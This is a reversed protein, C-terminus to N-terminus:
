VPDAACMEALPPAKKSNVQKAHPEERDRVALSLWNGGDTLMLKHTALSELFGCVGTESIEQGPSRERLHRVIGPFSRFEDCYTYAAAESGTLEVEPLAAGPRTDRLLLSGDERRTESLLGRTKQLRWGEVFRIVESAYGVPSEGERYDFDFHYAIRMLSETPFPYLYAYPAMPRVNM